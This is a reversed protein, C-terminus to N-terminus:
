CSLRLGMGPALKVMFIKFFLPQYLLTFIAAAAGVAETDGELSTMLEYEPGRYRVETYGDLERQRGRRSLGGQRNEQRYQAM